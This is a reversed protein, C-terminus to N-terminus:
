RLLRWCAAAQPVAVVLFSASHTTDEQEVHSDLIYDAEGVDKFDLHAYCSSFLAIPGM